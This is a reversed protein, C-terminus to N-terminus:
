PTATAARLARARARLRAARAALEASPDGAAIGAEGQALVEDLPLIPPTPGPPIADRSALGQPEACAALLLVMAFAPGTVFHSKSHQPM